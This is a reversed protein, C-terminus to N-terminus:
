RGQAAEGFSVPLFGVLDAVPAVWSGQRLRDSFSAKM